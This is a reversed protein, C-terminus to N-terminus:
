EDKEFNYNGPYGVVTIRVVNKGKMDYSYNPEIIMACGRAIVAEQLVKEKAEELTLGKLRKRDSITYPEIREQGAIIKYSNTASAGKQIKLSNDDFVRNTSVAAKKGGCASLTIAMLAVSAFFMIKKM